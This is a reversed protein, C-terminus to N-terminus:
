GVEECEDQYTAATGIPESVLLFKIPNFSNKEVMSKLIKIKHKEEDPKIDFKQSYRYFVPENAKKPQLLSHTELLHGKFGLFGYEIYLHKRNGETLLCSNQSLEISIIEITITNTCKFHSSSLNMTNDCFITFTMKSIREFLFRVHKMSLNKDGLSSAVINLKPSDNATSFSSRSSNRSSRRQIFEGVTEPEDNTSM